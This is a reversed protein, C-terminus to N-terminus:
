DDYHQFSAYILRALVFVMAAIVLGSLVGWQYGTIRSTVHDDVWPTFITAVVSAVIWRTEPTM